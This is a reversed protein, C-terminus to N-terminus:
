GKQLLHQKILHVDSRMGDFSGELRGVSARLQDLGSELRDLRKPIEDVRQELVDLRAEHAGLHTNLDAELQDIRGTTVRQRNSTYVYLGLASTILFQVVGFWFGAAGYDM